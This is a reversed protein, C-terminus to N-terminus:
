LGRGSSRGSCRRCGAEATRLAITAAVLGMLLGSYWLTAAMQRSYNALIDDMEQLSGRIRPLDQKLQGVERMGAQTAKAIDRAQRGADRPLFSRWIVSPTLGNLTIVPYRLSELTTMTDAFQQMAGHIAATGEHVNTMQNELLQLHQGAVQAMERASGFTREVDRSGPLSWSILLLTAAAALELMGFLFPLHLPKM